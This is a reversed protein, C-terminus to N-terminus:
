AVRISSNLPLSHNPSCPAIPPPKLSPQPSVQRHGVRQHRETPGPLHDVGPQQTPAGRSLLPPCSPRSDFPPTTRALLHFHHPSFSFPFQCCKRRPCREQTAHVWGDRSGAQPGVGGVGGGRMPSAGAFELTAQRRICLSLHKLYSRGPPGARLPLSAFPRTRVNTPRMHGRRGKLFGTFTCFCMQFKSECNLFVLWKNPPPGPFWRYIYGSCFGLCQGM